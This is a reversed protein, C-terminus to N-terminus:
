QAAKWLLFPALEPLRVPAAVPGTLRLGVPPADQVPRAELRLDLTGRGLDVVGTAAAAGGGETLLGATTLMIRGEASRAALELREFGTAGGALARRLGAEALGLEPEAAAAQLAALDFGRLVGNRVGLDLTGDLTAALAALSHGAAQLRVVSEVRGAMLDFPLGFVPAAITADTLQAEVALRPPLAAGEVVLGGRLAGGGLRAQVSELRLTGAALRLTASVQELLPSGLPEVREAELALEADLTTLWGFGLPEAAGADLGPLPLREAVIRGSLVPRAAGLALSLRGRARLGGAVIDLHDAAITLRAPALDPSALGSPAPGPPAAATGAPPAPQLAGNLGAVLAFSGEGLWEGAQGGLLPALLRPAGPHRLTLTGVGRRNVADLSAAAEVRLEGLDGEARLAVAEPVGGGSLRLAVPHEALAALAARDVLWDPPVLAALAAGNPGSVELGLDPFRPTAGLVASGSAALDVEGLRLALRRLALRGGELTADLAGREAAMGNWDLREATVRLNLDFGAARATVARWDTAGWAGAAPLLGDLDLRDVTVGLGVALRAGTRVVGAGSLRSGDIRAALESITAQGDELVLRFRGEAARLRAPDTGGLSLGLATLTERLQQSAFRVALEIRAGGTVGATAGAIELETEGPLLASVDSLTLRAGELFFAGRLRRLPVPGFSTAEASLDISVPVATNGAQRLAAVWADLDLRGAALAIDLRTEPALRLTVAGRAPQGGLDLTLDDAALLDAAATLRGRARFPGPPAPLLAALDGGAADLTGEFGGGPALIGRAALTAGTTTGAPAGTAVGVPAGATALTLDLPAIGDFGARGLQGSFRVATGRWGFSGEAILAEAIGGTVLTANLGDLQLGGVLLRCDELRADLATLWPPPRFSPLAAPPWPLRIEGGVLIIERPELRGALLAGLDLRLRMTRATVTIGDGAAGGSPAGSPGITVTGAEVRPQPLLVLTIPGDLAVPRGLMAGALDALRGRYPEWDFLRPGVWLAAGLLALLLLAPAFLRRM